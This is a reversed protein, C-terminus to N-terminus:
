QIFNSGYTFYEIDLCGMLQDTLDAQRSFGKDVVELSDNEPPGSDVLLLTALILTNVVEL